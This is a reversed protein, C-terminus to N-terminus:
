MIICCASSKKLLASTDEDVSPGLLDELFIKKDLGLYAEVHLVKEIYPSSLLSKRRSKLVFVTNAVDKESPPAEYFSGKKNIADVLRQTSYVLAYRTLKENKQIEQLRPLVETVRELDIGASGYSAGFQVFAVVNKKHLLLAQDVLIAAQQMQESREVGQMHLHFRSCQAVIAGLEKVDSSSAADISRYFSIWFIMISLFIAINKM